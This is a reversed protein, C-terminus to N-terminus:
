TTTLFVPIRRARNNSPSSSVEKLMESFERSCHCDHILSLCETLIRIHIQGAHEDGDRLYSSSISSTQSSSDAVSTLFTRFDDDLASRYKRLRKSTKSFGVIRGYILAAFAHLQSDSLRMPQSSFRPNTESKSALMGRGYLVTAKM